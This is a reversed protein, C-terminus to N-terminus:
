SKQYAVLVVNLEKELTQLAKIQGPDFKALGPDSELAVINAGLTQELAALRKLSNKELHAIHMDSRNM